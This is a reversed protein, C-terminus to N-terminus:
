PPRIDVPRGNKDLKIECEPLDFNISGHKRRKELLIGRLEAMLDFMGFLSGYEDEYKAREGEIIENVINYTMRRDSRIVSKAIRHNTVNGSRDIDMICSLALRDANPNLSCIGNSLKHPLM